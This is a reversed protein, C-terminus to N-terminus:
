LQRQYVETDPHFAYWAFWFSTVAPLPTGDAAFASASEAVRDYEVRIASGGIRDNVSREGGRALESFPYAKFRGDIEVGLVREKPHFRSSRATVPFYLGRAERYGAYPDRDYDRFHGTDRSLVLTDPHTRQWAAWSTHALPLPRLREGRKPGSVAQMMLQSWLSETQRDYLLVDSNFLLGSVGFRLGDDGDGTAFAVGTGCLPCFTVTVTQEGFRDNVVEHWNMIAIPYAKGIGDIVLGLVRADPRLAAAAADQFVPEDLAPIGDRPPGGRHIEDAPVLSGSLDFGNASDADLASVVALAAAVLLLVILVILRRM